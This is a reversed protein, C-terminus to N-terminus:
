KRYCHNGDSEEVESIKEEAETLMSNSGELNNKMEAITSNVKSKLDELEKYFMEQLTKIQTEVRKGLDQIMKLIMGRFEQEPLNDIKEDNLPKQTNKDQEKTQFSSRQPTMTDVKRNITGKVTPIYISFFTGLGLGAFRM